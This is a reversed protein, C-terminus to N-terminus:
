RPAADVWAQWIKQQQPDTAHEYPKLARLLGDCLKTATQAYAQDAAAESAPPLPKTKGEEILKLRLAATAACEVALRAHAAAYSGGLGETELLRQFNRLKPVLRQSSALEGVPVMSAADRSAAAIKATNTETAEPKVNGLTIQVTALDPTKSYPLFVTEPTFQQWKRGNVTVATVPGAGLTSLLLKKNGFRVPDIQELKTITPPIHPVLTLGDSRYLYEFLGRMLAAAPGFTDYCLNIPQTPQYVDSGCKTLPNDM